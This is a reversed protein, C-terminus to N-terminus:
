PALGLVRTEVLTRLRDSLDAGQLPEGHGVVLTTPRDTQLRELVWEGYRRRDEVALWFWTGGIRLGPVTGTARLVMGNVGTVPRLVHFFADGVLWTVGQEGEIRLWAEGNKTGAPELFSVGFPLSAAVSELPRFRVSPQQRALRVSAKESAIATAEGYRRRWEPLGLHHFHNSALLVRPAGIKSLTAHAAEGLDKTPSVILTGESALPLAFSQLSWGGRVIREFSRLGRAGEIKRWETM